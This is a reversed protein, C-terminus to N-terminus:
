RTACTVPIWWAMPLRYEDMAERVPLPAPVVSASDLYVLDKLCPMDNRVDEVPKGM